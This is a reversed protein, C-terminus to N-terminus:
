GQLPMRVAAAPARHRSRGRSHRGSAPAPAQTCATLVDRLALLAVSCTRLRCVHRVVARPASKAPLARAHESILMPVYCRRRMLHAAHLHRSMMHCCGIPRRRSSPLKRSLGSSACMSLYTQVACSHQPAICATVRCGARSVTRAGSSSLLLARCGSWHQVCMCVCTSPPPSCHVGYEERAAAVAVHVNHGRLGPLALATDAMSASVVLQMGTHRRCTMMSSRISVDAGSSGGPEL